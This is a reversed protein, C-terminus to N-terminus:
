IWSNYKGVTKLVPTMNIEVYPDYSYPGNDKSIVWNTINWGPDGTAELNKNIENKINAALCYQINTKRIEGMGYHSYPIYSGAKGVYRIKDHNVYGEVKPINLMDYLVTYSLTEQYRKELQEKASKRLAKCIIAAMDAICRNQGIKDINAMDDNTLYQRALEQSFKIYLRRKTYKLVWFRRMETRKGFLNTKFYKEQHAIAYKTEDSFEIHHKRILANMCGCDYQNQKANKEKDYIIPYNKVLAGPNYYDTQRYAKKPEVLLGERDAEPINKYELPGDANYYLYISNIRYDGIDLMYEEGTAYSFFALFHLKEQLSTDFGEWSTRKDAHWEPDFITVLGETAQRYLSITNQPLQVLSVEIPNDKSLDVNGINSSSSQKIIETVVYTMGCAKCKIRNIGPIIDLAAGCQECNM